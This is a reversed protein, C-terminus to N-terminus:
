FLSTIGHNTFIPSEPIGFYLFIGGIIVGFLGLMKLYNSALIRIVAKRWFKYFLPLSVGLAILLVGFILEM